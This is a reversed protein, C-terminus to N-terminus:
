RTCVAEWLNILSTYNSFTTMALLTMAGFSLVGILVVGWAERTAAFVTCTFLIGVMMPYIFLHLFMLAEM